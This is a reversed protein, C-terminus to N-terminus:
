NLIFRIGERRIIGRKLLRNIALEVQELDYGRLKKDRCGFGIYAGKTGNQKIVDVINKQISGLRM